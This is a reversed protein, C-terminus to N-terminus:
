KFIQLAADLATVRAQLPTRTPFPGIIDERLQRLVERQRGRWQEATQLRAREREGADLRVVALDVLHNYGAHQREQYRPWRALVALDEKPQAAFSSAFATVAL